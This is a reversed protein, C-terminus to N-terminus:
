QLNKFAKVNSDLKKDCDKDPCLIEEMSDIKFILYNEICEECFM